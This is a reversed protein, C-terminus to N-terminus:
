NSHPHDEYTKINKYINRKMAELLVINHKNKRVAERKTFWGKEIGSIEHFFNFDPTLLVCTKFTLGTGLFGIAELKDEKVNINSVFSTILDKNLSAETTGLDLVFTSDKFLCCFWQKIQKKKFAENILNKDLKNKLKIVLKKDTAM